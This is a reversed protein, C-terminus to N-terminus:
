LDWKCTGAEGWLSSGKVSSRKWHLLSHRPCLASSLDCCLAASPALHLGLYLQSPPHPLLQQAPSMSPVWGKGARCMGATFELLAGSTVAGLM